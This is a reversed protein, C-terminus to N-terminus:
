GITRVFGIQKTTIDMNYWYIKQPVADRGFGIIQVDYNLNTPIRILTMISDGNKTKNIMYNSTDYFIQFKNSFANSDSIQVPVICSYIENVGGVLTKSSTNLNGEGIIQDTNAGVTIAYDKAYEATENVENIAGKLTQELTSLTATGITSNVGAILKNIVNMTEADKTLHLGFPTADGVEVKIRRIVLFANTLGASLGLSIYGGNMSRIQLDNGDEIEVDIENTQYTFPRSVTVFDNAKTPMKNGIYYEISVSFTTTKLIDSIADPNSNGAEWMPVFSPSALFSTVASTFRSKSLMLGYSVAPTINSDVTWGDVKNGSQSFNIAYFDSNLLLNIKENEHVYQNMYEIVAQISPANFEKNDGTEFSNIILGSTKVPSTSVKKLHRKVSM